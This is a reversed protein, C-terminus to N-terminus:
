ISKFVFYNSVLYLEKYYTQDRVNMIFVEAYIFDLCFGSIFKRRLDNSLLFWEM